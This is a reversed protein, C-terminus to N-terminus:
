TLSESNVNNVLTYLISQYLFISDVTKDVTENQRNVDNVCRTLLSKSVTSLRKADFRYTM